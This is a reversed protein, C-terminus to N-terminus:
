YFEINSVSIYLQAAHTYRLSSVLRLSLPPFWCQDWKSTSCCQGRLSVCCEASNFPAKIEEIISLCCYLKKKQFSKELPHCQSWADATLFQLFINWKGKVMSQIKSLFFCFVFLFFFRVICLHSDWFLVSM